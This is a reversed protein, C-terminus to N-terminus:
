RSSRSSSRAATVGAGAEDKEVGRVVGGAGDEAALFQGGDGCEGAFAVEEDDGVLDVLVQDELALM